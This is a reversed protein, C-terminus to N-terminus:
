NAFKLSDNWKDHQSWHQTPCIFKPIPNTVDRMLHTLMPPLKDWTVFGNLNRASWNVMTVREMGDCTIGVASCCDAYLQSMISPQNLPVGVDIAFSILTPCDVSVAAIFQLLYFM